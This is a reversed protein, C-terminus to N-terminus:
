IKGNVTILLTVSPLELGVSNSKQDRYVISHVFININLIVYQSTILLLFLSDVKIEITIALDIIVFPFM